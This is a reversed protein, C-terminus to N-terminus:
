FYIFIFTLLFFIKLILFNYRWCEITGNKLGAFLYGHNCSVCSIDSNHDITQSIKENELDLVIMKENTIFWVSEEISSQQIFKIKENFVLNNKIENFSFDYGTEGSPPSSVQDNKHSNQFLFSYSEEIKEELFSRYKNNPNIFNLIKKSENLMEFLKEKPTSSMLNKPSMVTQTIYHITKSAIEENVEKEDIISCIWHKAM